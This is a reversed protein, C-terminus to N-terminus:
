RMCNEIFDLRVDRNEDSSVAANVKDICGSADLCDRDM